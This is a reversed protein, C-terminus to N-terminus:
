SQSEKRTLPGNVMCLTYGWPATSRLAGSDSTINLTFPCLVELVMPQPQCHLYELLPLLLCLFYGEVVVQGVRTFLRLTFLVVPRMRVSFSLGMGAVGFLSSSTCDLAASSSSGVRM